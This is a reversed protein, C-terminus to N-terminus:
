DREREYLVYVEPFLTGNFNSRGACLEPTKAAPLQDSVMVTLIAACYAVFVEPLISIMRGSTKKELWDM